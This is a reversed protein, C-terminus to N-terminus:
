KRIGTGIGVAGATKLSADLNPDHTGPGPVELGAKSAKGKKGMSYAPAAGDLRKSFDYAGPGPARDKIRAVKKETGQKHFGFSSGV